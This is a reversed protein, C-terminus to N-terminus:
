RTGGTRAPLSALLEEAARRLQADEGALTEGLPREVTVDVPRPHLEMDEGNMAQIRIFPVRVVSGDILPQGGTYIIWGATPVGVVKGVGLARYGETFDEADSLSSENVLLVTPAGLARQGLAQRAPVPFRDRPTMTIFNRRTFVDLVYGNVYGGNNNRLDIVVGDKAQNEADLDVYLQALSQDSMDAIHVYGLRGGSVRDVFARRENVWQRYLLGRAVAPAVPRVVAERVVGAASAIGLVTRRGVQNQLLSDVNTTREIPTGNVSVLREGPRITGELAAPGLAILERIVLGRGAEASDRDFRLGIDGVRGTPLSGPGESPLNIGSHSANLEGILLNISRRMEDPTRVGEIRPLWQARLAKWDRGHFAPDYFRRDLTGWAEDFVVEKETAFDVNMEATLAVMNTKPTEAPTWAVTGGELYFVEKSDLTFVYDSKPRRSAALQQPVPPEKALEDLNYSYITNLGGQNATFLLIKGDPSIVPREAGLGLPLTTARERIGEFVIRVPKVPPKAPAAGPKAAPGAKVQQSVDAPPTPTATGPQAPAPEGPARGPRFLERFADERYKPLNPVLDVRVIRADESRQASDFLIYRGDPSWAITQGTQGNALFSVPRAEGGAAPVVWVNSFSRRDGVTFAIWRGDPSWSPRTDGGIDVAGTFLVVDSAPVGAAAPRLLHLEREDRVYALAKGDPSWAPSLNSGGAPTLVREKEAGFDYEVIRRDLGQESVYVLRRSDPSWIPASEAGPTRSIRQANGGDKAPAAFLEGHAVIAIKKGDPALALDTFNGEVLRREGAAAPAGRLTVPVPAAQASATDFRWLAGGREFVIARGGGGISPWLLRGDTFATLRRPAGGALDLRWLNETGGEDSMYYLAGGDPAWMPWLHKAGTPLLRRYPTGSAIPKLWLETEDIHSHGNRWWQVNAFGKAMLALSAGDPSPAANFEALYRERSVELPTGGEAAVRFVDTQRAVDNASSSFYLWKGDPSWGDLQENAEAFTLRRVAGSAFDLIYLNAYGGNRTSLFALRTGDPSYLPRSDTAPDTVLLRATGGQAPVTWIDGGSAFAIESGDPSLAPEALSAVAAPQAPAQAAALAPFALSCLLCALLRRTM